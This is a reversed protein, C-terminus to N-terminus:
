GRIVVKLAFGNMEGALPNLEIPPEDRRKLCLYGRRDDREHMTPAVIGAPHQIDGFPYVLIPKCDQQIVPPTVPVAAAVAGTIHKLKRLINDSRDFIQFFSGIDVGTTDAYDPVGYAACAGYQGRCHIFADGGNDADGGKGVGINQGTVGQSAHM